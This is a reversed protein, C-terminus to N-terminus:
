KGLIATLASALDAAATKSAKRARFAVHQDPRVLLCGSDEIERARTWDGVHDDYDRRPGIVWMAIAIGRKAAEAKAAEV